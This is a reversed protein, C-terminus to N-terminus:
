AAVVRRTAVQPRFLVISETAREVVARVAAEDRESRASPLRSLHPHGPFATRLDLYVLWAHTTRGAVVLRRMQEIDESLDVM